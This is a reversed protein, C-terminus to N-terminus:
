KFSNTKHSKYTRLKQNNKKEEEYFLSNRIKDLILGFIWGWFLGNCVGIYIWITEGQGKILGFIIGIIGFVWWSTISIQSKKNM